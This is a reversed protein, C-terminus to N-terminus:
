PQAHRHLVPENWTIGTGPENNVAVVGNEVQAPTLLAPSALDVFELWHAGPTAALLHASLEPFFHSSVPLGKVHALAAARMWGTVGGIKVVDLMVLDSAGQAVSAAMEHVSSWNEGIQIPTRAERAIAAHGPFDDARTPEEIWHLAEDDLRRIRRQAEVVTLSQNFDIMLELSRDVERVARIAALDDAPDQHGVKIKLARCGHSLAGEAAQRAEAASCLGATWYAQVPRPSGGLATALPVGMARARADWLAADLGGLAMGVLGGAGLLRVRDGLYREVDGPSAERGCVLGGLNRVLATLPELCLRTYAFIYSRGVVGQETEVDILVLPSSTIAGSATRIPPCPLDVARAKVQTVSLRDVTEPPAGAPTRNCDM